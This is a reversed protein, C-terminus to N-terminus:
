VQNAKKKRKKRRKDMERRMTFSDFTMSPEIAVGDVLFPDPTILLFDGWNAADILARDRAEEITLGKGETYDSGTAHGAATMTHGENSTLQVYFTTRNCTEFMSMVHIRVIKKM